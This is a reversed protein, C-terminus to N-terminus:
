LDGDADGEDEEFTTLTRDLGTEISILKDHEAEWDEGEGGAFLRLSRARLSLPVPGYRIRGRVDGRQIRRDRRRRRHRRGTRRVNAAISLSVSIIAPPSHRRAPM